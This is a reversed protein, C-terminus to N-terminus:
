LPNTTIIIANWVSRRTWAVLNSINLYLISSRLGTMKKIAIDMATNFVSNGEQIGIMRLFALEKKCKLLQFQFSVESQESCTCWRWLWQPGRCCLGWTCRRSTTYIRALALSYMVPQQWNGIATMELGGTSIHITSVYIIAPSFCQTAFWKRTRPRVKARDYPTQGYQLAM